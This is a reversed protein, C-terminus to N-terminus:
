MLPETFGGMVKFLRTQVDKTTMNVTPFQGVNEYREYFEPHGPPVPEEGERLEWSTSYKFPWVDFIPMARSIDEVIGGFFSVLPIGDHKAATVWSNQAETDRLIDAKLAQAVDADWILIGLQTDHGISRPDFNHSGVYAIRDDIVIAKAHLGTIPGEATTPIRDDVVEESNQGNREIVLEDYRTIMERVDGPVPKFEFIQMGVKQLLYKKQKMTIAYTFFHDTSALSNTSAIIEM